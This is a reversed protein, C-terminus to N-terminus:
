SEQHHSKMVKEVMMMFLMLSLYEVIGFQFSLFLISAGCWSVALSSM